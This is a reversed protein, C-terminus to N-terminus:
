IALSSSLALPPKGALSVLPCQHAGDPRINMDGLLPSVDILTINGNLKVYAVTGLALLVALGAALAIAGRRLLPHRSAHRRARQLERRSPDAESPSLPDLRAQEDGSGAEAM